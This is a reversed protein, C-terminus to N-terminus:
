SGVLGGPGLDNEEFYNDPIGDGANEIGQPLEGYDYGVDIVDLGEKPQIL